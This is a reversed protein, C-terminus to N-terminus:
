RSQTLAEVRSYGLPPNCGLSATDWCLLVTATSGLVFARATGLPVPIGGDGGGFKSQFRNVSARRLALRRRACM